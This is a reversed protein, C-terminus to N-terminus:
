IGTYQLNDYTGGGNRGGGSFFGQGAAGVGGGILRDVGNWTNAAGAGMFARSAAANQTYRQKKNWDFAQQQYNGTINNQSMQRVRNQVRANANAMALTNLANNTNGQIASIAGIASGRDQAQKIASAQSGYVNEKALNYQEAPLGQNAQIDALKQNTQVAQPVGQTPFPNNRALDKGMHTQHMGHFLSILGTLGQAALGFFEPPM